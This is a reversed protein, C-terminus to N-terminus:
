PSPNGFLVSGQPLSPSAAQREDEGHGVAEGVWPGLAVPRAEGGGFEANVRPGGRGRKGQGRGTAIISGRSHALCQPLPRAVFVFSAFLLAPSQLGGPKVLPLCLRPTFM